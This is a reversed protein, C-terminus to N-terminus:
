YRKFELVKGDDFTVTISSPYLCKNGYIVKSIADVTRHTQECKEAEEETNYDTNCIECTYLTKTKM